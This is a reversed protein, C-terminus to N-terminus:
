PRLALVAVAAIVALLLLLGLAAASFMLGLSAREPLAESETPSAPPVEAPPNRDPQRDRTMAPPLRPCGRSPRLMLAFNAM